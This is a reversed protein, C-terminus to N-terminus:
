AVTLANESKGWLTLAKIGLVDEFKQATNADSASEIPPLPYEGLMWQGNQEDFSM